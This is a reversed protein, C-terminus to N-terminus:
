NGSCIKCLGTKKNKSFFGCTCPEYQGCLEFSISLLEQLNETNGSNLEIIVEKSIKTLNEIANEM